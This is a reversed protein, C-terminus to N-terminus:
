LPNTVMEWVCRTRALITGITLRFTIFGGGGTITPYPYTSDYVEWGLGSLPTITFVGAICKVEISRRFSRHNTGTSDVCCGTCTVLSTSNNPYALLKLNFPTSAVMSERPAYSAFRVVDDFSYDNTFVNDNSDYQTTKTYHFEPYVSTSYISVGNTTDMIKARSTGSLNTCNMYVINNLDSAVDSSAQLLIGKGYNTIPPPTLKTLTLSYESTGTAGGQPNEILERGNLTISGEVDVRSGATGTLGMLGKCKTTGLNVLNSASDMNLNCTGTAGFGYLIGGNITLSDITQPVTPKTLVFDSNVASTAPITFVRNANQNATNITVNNVANPCNLVYGQKFIPQQNILQNGGTTGLMLYRTDTATIDVTGTAGTPGVAGTSGTAGTAGTAGSMMSSSKLNFAGLQKFSVIACKGNNTYSAQTNFIIKYLPVTESPAIPSVFLQSYTEAEADALTDYQTQGSKMFMQYAGLVAPVIVVYYTVYKNNLLDTQIWNEGNWRNYRIFGGASFTYPVSNTIYSWYGNSGSLVSINYNPTTKATIPITLDEDLINGSTLYFQNSADTPTAPNLVYNSAVLGDRWVTGITKHLYYHTDVDMICGHRNDMIFGIVGSNFYVQAVLVHETYVEPDIVQLSGANFIINYIGQSTSHICTIANQIDYRVANDWLYLPPTNPTLTVTRTGADYSLTSNALSARSFGHPTNTAKNRDDIYNTVAYISPVINTAANGGTWGNYLTTISNGNAFKIGNSFIPQQTITQATVPNNVIIQGGSTSALTPIKLDSPATQTDTYMFVNGTAGIADKYYIGTTTLRNVTLNNSIVQETVPKTVLVESNATMNPINLDRQGTQQGTYLYVVDGTGVQEKIRIGDNFIPSQMINQNGGTTGLMLYRTDAVAFNVTGAPGTPGTAGTGGTANIGAPGTAGTAGMSGTAGTLGQIGQPGTAGTAGTAGTTGTGGMGVPVGNIYYGDTVDISACYLENNNKQLIVNM